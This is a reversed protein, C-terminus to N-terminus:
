IENILMESFYEDLARRGQESLSVFYSRADTPHEERLILADKELRDLWRLATTMPVRSFAILRNLTMRRSIQETIYLTLLIDWGPEGFIRSGFLRTRRRRNAFTSQARGIMASRTIQKSRGPENVILALLRAAARVDQISLTITRAAESDDSRTQLVGNAM